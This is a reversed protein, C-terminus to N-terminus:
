HTLCTNKSKGHLTFGENFVQFIRHCLYTSDNIDVKCFSVPLFLNGILFQCVQVPPNCQRLVRLASMTLQGQLLSVRSGDKQPLWLLDWPQQQAQQHFDQGEWLCSPFALNQQANAPWQFPKM